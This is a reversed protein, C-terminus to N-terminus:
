NIEQLLDGLDLAQTKVVPAKEPKVPAGTPWSLDLGGETERLIEAMKGSPDIHKQELTAEYEEIGKLAGRLMFKLLEGSM